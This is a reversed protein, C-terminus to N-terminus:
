YEGFRRQVAKSAHACGKKSSKLSGLAQKGLPRARGGKNSKVARSSDPADGSSRWRRM